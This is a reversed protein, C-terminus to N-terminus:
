AAVGAPIDHVARARLVTRPSVGLRRGIEHDDLGRGALEAVDDAHVSRPASPADPDPVCAPNDIDDWAMPGYWGEAMAQNRAQEAFRSQPAPRTSLRRYVREVKTATMSRINVWRGEVTQQLSSIGTGVQAAIDPLTYGLVMLAQLRRRTGTADSMGRPIPPAQDLRINLVATVTTRKTRRSRGSLLDSITVSGCDAAAAIQFHTWGRATLREAHARAQTNDILRNIGNSHDYALRLRYSHGAAVCPTCRCSHRSYRSYTGHTPLNNM